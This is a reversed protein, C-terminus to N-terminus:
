QPTSKKVEGDEPMINVVVKVTSSETNRLRPDPLTLQVEREITDIAGEIDVSATQVMTVVALSSRPGALRVFLPDVTVASVKFGPSPVGSIVPEIPFREEGSRELIVSIISPSIRTVRTMEPAKIASPYLEFTTLGEMAGDLDLPLTIGLQSINSVIRKPGSFRVNVREIPHEVMEMDVSLNQFEVPISVSVEMNEGGAGRSIVSWLFFAFLLSFAKLGINKRLIELM